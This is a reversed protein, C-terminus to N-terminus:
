QATWPAASLRTSSTRSPEILEGVAGSLRACTLVHKPDLRQEAIRVFEAITWGSQPLRPAVRALRTLKSAQPLLTSALSTAM